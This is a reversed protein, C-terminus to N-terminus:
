HCQAPRGHGQPKCKESIRGIRTPYNGSLVWDRVTEFVPAFLRNLGPSPEGKDWPTDGSCYLAEWADTM